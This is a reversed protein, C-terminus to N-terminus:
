GMECSSRNHGFQSFIGDMSPPHNNGRLSASPGGIKHRLFSSGHTSKAGETFAILVSGRGLDNGKPVISGGRVRWSPGKADDRIFEGGQTDLSLYISFPLSDVIPHIANTRMFHDDFHGPMMLGQDGQRYFTYLVDEQGIPLPNDIQPSVLPKSIDEDKFVVPDGCPSRKFM